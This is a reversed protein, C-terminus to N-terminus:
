EGEKEKGKRKVEKVVKEKRREMRKVKIIIKIKKIM